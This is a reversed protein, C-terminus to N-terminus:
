RARTEMAGGTERQTKAIADNAQKEIQDPMPM